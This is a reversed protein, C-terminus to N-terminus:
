KGFVWYQTLELSQKLGRENVQMKSKRYTKDSDVFVMSLDPQSHYTLMRHSDQAWLLNLLPPMGLRFCSTSVLHAQSCLKCRRERDKRFAKRTNAAPHATSCWNPTHASHVKCICGAQAHKVISNQGHSFHIAKMLQLSCCQKTCCWPRWIFLNSPHLSHRIQLQGESSFLLSHKELYITKQEM